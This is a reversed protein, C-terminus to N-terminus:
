RKAAAIVADYAPKRAYSDDFLLPSLPRRWSDADRLGWITVRVISARHKMFVAFVEGYRQALASQDEPSLPPPAGNPGRAAGPPAVLTAFPAHQEPSLLKRVAEICATRLPGIREFEHVNAAAVIKQNAEEILPAIQNRQTDTLSLKSAIVDLPPFARPAGDAANFNVSGSVSPGRTVTVDLETIHVKLGLAAFMKITEDIKAPTPTTLNFHGQLGIGHIPAGNERLYKVLEIASARKRDNAELNYDNYYLEAGPDAEHAWKFALVLYEKGLLRYFVTDRYDGAGDNLAENVVDWGRVKGKYRGAVTLIHDRLRARLVDKTLETQGPEPQSMWAPMQSHWVLAHGIFTLKHKQAFDVLTDAPAFDYASADNGRRPHIPGMKMVNEATLTNFERLILAQAAPLRGDVQDPRVATGLLFADKFAGQLTAAEPAKSVQAGASSTLLAGVLCFSAVGFRRCFAHM